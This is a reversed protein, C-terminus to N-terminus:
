LIQKTINRTMKMKLMEMEKTTQTYEKIARAISSLRKSLHPRKNKTKKNQNAKTILL